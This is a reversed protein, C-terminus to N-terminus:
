ADAAGSDREGMRAIIKNLANAMSRATALRERLRDANYSYEDMERLASEIEGIESLYANRRGTLEARNADPTIHLPATSM